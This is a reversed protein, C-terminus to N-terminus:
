SGSDRREDVPVWRYSQSGTVRALAGRDLLGNWARVFSREISAPSSEHRATWSPGFQKKIEAKTGGNGTNFVESLLGVLITQAETLDDDFMQARAESDQAYAVLVVSSETRGPTLMTLGGGAMLVPAPPSMEVTVPTFRLGIPALEPGDKQKTTKVTLKDGMRSVTLETQAAAKLASAGRGEMGAKGTHHVTLVCAGTARRLREIQEVLVGMESNSNEEMGVSVRAQTDLTILVPRIRALARVLTDWEPGSAQVPRPLYLVGGGVDVGHHSEWARHRVGMGRAGEAVLAVVLGQHVAHGQWPKGIAISLAMDLAVFSKGHGSPGIMWAASDMMLLGEVLPELPPMAALQAGTVLEGLLADVPDIQEPQTDASSTSIETPSPGSYPPASGPLAFVGPLATPATSATSTPVDGSLLETSVRPGPIAPSFPPVGGALNVLEGGALEKPVERGRGGVKRQASRWCEAAEVATFSPDDATLTATANDYGARISDPALNAWPTNIFEILNCAVEFATHNRSGSEARALRDCERGVAMAAYRQLRDGHTPYDLFASSGPEMREREVPPRARILDLLWPPAPVPDVDRLVVYAGALSVSPATVVQGGQGRVDIGPPLTGKANTPTFDDPLTFYFHWGGSGTLVTYTYGISGHQAELEALRKDGDHRPDIDLVWVGSQQGTLIGLNATPRAAIAADLQTREAIASAGWASAVPHKGASGEVTNHKPDERPNGCSCEGAAVDHLILVHWGRALYDVASVLKSNDTM